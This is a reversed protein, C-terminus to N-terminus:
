RRCPVVVDIAVPGLQQWNNHTLLARFFFAAGLQRRQQRCLGATRGDTWGRINWLQMAEVKPLRVRRIRLWDPRTYSTNDWRVLIDFNLGRLGAGGGDRTNTRTSSRRM